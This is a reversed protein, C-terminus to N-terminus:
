ILDEFSVEEGEELMKDYVTSDIHITKGTMDIEDLIANIVDDIEGQDYVDYDVADWHVIYADATMADFSSTLWINDNVRISRFTDSIIEFDEDWAGSGYIKTVPIMGDNDDVYGDHVLIDEVGALMSAIVRHTGDNVFSGDDDSTIIVPNRFVGGNELDNVLDYITSSHSPDDLMSDRLGRWDHTDALDYYVHDYKKILDSVKMKYEGTM